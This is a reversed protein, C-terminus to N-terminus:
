APVQMLSGAPDLPTDVYLTSCDKGWPPMCERWETMFEAFSAPDVQAFQHANTWVVARRGAGRAEHDIHALVKQWPDEPYRFGGLAEDLENALDAVSRIQSGDLHVAEVRQDCLCLALTAGDTEGIHQVTQRRSRGLTSALIIGYLFMVKPPSVLSGGSDVLAWVFSGLVILVFFWRTM